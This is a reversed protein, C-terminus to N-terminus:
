KSNIKITKAPKGVDVQSARTKALEGSKRRLATTTADKNAGKRLLENFNNSIGGGSNGKVVKVSSGVEKYQPNVFKGGSGAIGGSGRSGGAIGEIRSAQAMKNEKDTNNLGNTLLPRM